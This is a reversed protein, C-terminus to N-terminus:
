KRRHEDLFAFVDPEWTSVGLYLLAHGEDATHGVPPYIKLRHPKGLQELRANLEKGASLSYDNVAHIFFVPATIRAVAAFLPLYLGVLVRDATWSAWRAVRPWLSAEEPEALRQVETHLVPQFIRTLPEAFSSSTYQMAVTPIAYGCGWTADQQPRFHRAARTRLAILLLTAAALVPVMMGLPRLVNPAAQADAAPAIVAVATGLAGAAGSPILAMTACGAALLVLALVMAWGPRPAADAEATRASGSLGVGVLRTFCAVALGGTLAIALVSGLFAVGAAGGGRTSVAGLLAGRLLLWESTFMNLGPLSALAAGDPPAPM